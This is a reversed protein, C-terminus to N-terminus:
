APQLQRPEIALANPTSASPSLWTQQHAFDFVIPAQRFPDVLHEVIVADTELAFRIGEEVLERLGDLTQATATWGRVGPSDAWWGDSEQHYIVPVIHM